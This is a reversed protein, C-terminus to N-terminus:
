GLGPWDIIFMLLLILCLIYSFVFEGFVSRKRARESVVVEDGVRVEEYESGSDLFAYRGFVPSFRAGQDVRRDKMLSKLVSGGEGKGMKGTTYDVNISTCRICNATLPLRSGQKNSPSITVETWFDEEFATEAGSIVINPRFKTMDPTHNPLRSSVNCLSTTSTILYPACDAFTIREKGQNTSTTTYNANLFLLIRLLVAMLLFYLQGHGLGEGWGYIGVLVVVVVVLDREWMWKGKWGWDRRLWALRGHRVPAFSGLVERYFPGLYVLVVRYGFCESFWDNYERGMDYAKTPSNHLNVKVQPHNTHINPHLPISLKRTTKEPGPEEDTHRPPSPPSPPSSSPPTYTVVVREGEDDGDQGGDQGDVIETGFLAMEPFRSVSMPRLEGKGEGEDEGSGSSDSAVVKLLMFRRDYRFGTRTLTAEDLTTGRLSKIPYTYIKM